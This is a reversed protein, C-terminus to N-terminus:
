DRPKEGLPPHGYFNLLYNVDFMNYMQESICFRILKDKFLDESLHYGAKHFFKETETIDLRLGIALAAVTEKAPKYPAKSPDCNKIKSFVFRSVWAANYVDSDKTYFRLNKAKKSDEEIRMDILQMLHDRFLTPSGLEKQWREFKSTLSNEDLKTGGTNVQSFKALSSTSHLYNEFKAVLLKRQPTEKYDEHTNNNFDKNDM